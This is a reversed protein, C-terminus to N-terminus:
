TGLAAQLKLMGDPFATAANALIEAVDEALRGAQQIRKATAIVDQISDTPAYVALYIAEKPTM